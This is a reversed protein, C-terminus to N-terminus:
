GLFLRSIAFLTFAVGLLVFAAGELSPDGAEIPEARRREADDDAATERERAEIDELSFRWEREEDGDGNEDANEDAPGASASGGPRNEPGDPPDAADEGDNM